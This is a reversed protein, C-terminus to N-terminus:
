AAITTWSTLDTPAQLVNITRTIRRSRSTDTASHSSVKNWPMSKLLALLKPRNAKVTMLYDGGGALIARATDDQTHM